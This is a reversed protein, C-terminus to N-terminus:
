AGDLHFGDLGSAVHLIGFGNDFSRILMNAHDSQEM